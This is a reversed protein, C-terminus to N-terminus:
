VIKAKGRLSWLSSGRCELDEMVREQRALGCGKTQHDDVREEVDEFTVWGVVEYHLGGM